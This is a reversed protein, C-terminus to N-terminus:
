LVGIARLGLVVTYAGALATFLRHFAPASVGRFARQGVALFTAAAVAGYTLHSWRLVGPTVIALVGLQIAAFCAYCFAILARIDEKRRFRASAFILLLAGGLNSVGHVVGMLVLWTKEHRSVWQRASHDLDPSLRLSVFVALLIAVFLNPTAHVDLVLMAALSVAVPALCWIAFVRVFRVDEIGTKWVQLLSIAISAPLLIALADAFSHGLLLLTPTGFVLLGVGFVSQVVALLAVISVTVLM